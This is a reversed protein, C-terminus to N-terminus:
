YAVKGMSTSRFSPAYSVSGSSGSSTLGSCSPDTLNSNLLAAASPSDDTRRGDVCFRIGTACILARVLLM